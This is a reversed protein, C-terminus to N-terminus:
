KQSALSKRGVRHKRLAISPDTNDISRAARSTYRRSRSSNTVRRGTELPRARSAVALSRMRSTIDFKYKTLIYESGHGVHM